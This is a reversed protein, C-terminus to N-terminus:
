RIRENRVHHNIQKEEEDFKKQYQMRKLKPLVKNLQKNMEHNQQNEHKKFSILLDITDELSMLEESTVIDTKDIGDLIEKLTKRKPFENNSPYHNTYRKSFYNDDYYDLEDDDLTALGSIKEFWTPKRDKYDRIKHKYDFTIKDIANEVPVSVAYPNSEDKAVKLFLSNLLDPTALMARLQASDYDSLSNTVYEFIQNKKSIEKNCEIMKDDPLNRVYDVYEELENALKKKLREANRIDLFKMDM